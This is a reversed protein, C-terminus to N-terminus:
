FSSKLRGIIQPQREKDIKAIDHLIGDIRYRVRIYDAMPEIHIDSARKKMGGRIIEDVITTVNSDTNITGASSEFNHLIELINKKFTIYRNMILGKNLLLLRVSEIQSLNSTSAFCVKIVGDNIEFPIALYDKAADLSIYDQISIKLDERKLFITREKLIEGMANLLKNPEALGLEYLIDGLKEGPHESQYQLAKSIDEQKVIQRRVLEIGLPQRNEAM